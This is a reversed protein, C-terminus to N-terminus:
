LARRLQALTDVGNVKFIRNFKDIEIVDMNDISVRMYTVEYTASSDMAAAATGTGMSFSKSMVNMSVRIPQTRIVPTARSNDQLQIGGRFTLSHGGAALTALIRSNPVRLNITTEMSEFNGEIPVEIEGGIGAGSLTETMKTIEPLEVDVVTPDPSGGVYMNFGQLIQPIQNM